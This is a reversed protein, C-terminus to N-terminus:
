ELDEMQIGGTFEEESDDEDDEMRIGGMRSELLAEQTDDDILKELRPIEKMRGEPLAEKTEHEMLKELRRVEKELQESIEEEDGTLQEPHSLLLPSAEESEKLEEEEQDMAELTEAQARFQEEDLNEMGISELIAGILYPYRLHGSVKDSVDYNEVSPVGTIRELGAVALQM